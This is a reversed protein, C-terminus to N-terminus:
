IPLPSSIILVERGANEWSSEFNERHTIQPKNETLSDFYQVKDAALALLVVAHTASPYGFFRREIGVIPFNGQRLCDRLDDCSWDGRWEAIVGNELMKQTAQTLTLGFRPNGLLSRITVEEFEQGFATLVMRVCAAVCSAPHEQAFWKIM